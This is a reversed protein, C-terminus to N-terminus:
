ADRARGTWRWYPARVGGVPVNRLLDLRTSSALAVVTRRNITRRSM